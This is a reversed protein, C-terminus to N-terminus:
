NLRQLYLNVETTSTASNACIFSASPFNAVSNFTLPESMPLNNIPHINQKVSTRPIFPIGQPFQKFNIEGYILANASDPSIADVKLLRYNGAILENTPTLSVNVLSENLTSATTTCNLIVDTRQGISNDVVPKDTVFAMAYIDESTTGSSKIKCEVDDLPSFSGKMTNARFDYVGNNNGIELNVTAIPDLVSKSYTNPNQSNTASVLQCSTAQTLSGFSFAYIFPFSGRAQIKDGSTNFLNNPYTLANIATLSTVGARTENWIMAAIM